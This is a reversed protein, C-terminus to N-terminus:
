EFDLEGWWVAVAAWTKYSLTWQESTDGLAKWLRVNGVVKAKSIAMQQKLIMSKLAGM